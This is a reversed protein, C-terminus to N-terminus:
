KFSKRWMIVREGGNDCVKTSQLCRVKYVKGFAGDGLEKDIEFM